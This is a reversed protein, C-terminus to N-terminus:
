VQAASSPPVRASRDNGFTGIERYFGGRGPGPGAPCPRTAPGDVLVRGADIDDLGSLCNLLTTKGSGSPGMVAVMEVAAVQLDLDVLAHVSVEGNRYRKQVSEAVLLPPKSEFAARAM